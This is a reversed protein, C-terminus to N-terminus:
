AEVQEGARAAATALARATLVGAVRKRYRASAHVDDFPEVEDVVREGVRRFLAGDPAEAGTVEDLWAPVHPVGGVGALAV